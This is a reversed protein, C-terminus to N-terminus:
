FEKIAESVKEQTEKLDSGNMIIFLPAGLYIAYDTTFALNIEKHQNLLDISDQERNRANDKARRKMIDKTEADIYIIAKIQDKLVKLDDASLGPVYANGSKVSPHTDILITGSRKVLREFVGKRLRMVDAYGTIEMAKLKDREIVRSEKQYAELLETGINCIEVGQIGKLVTSKGAGPTGLILFLKAM